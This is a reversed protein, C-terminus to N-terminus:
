HPIYNLLGGIGNNAHEILRAGSNWLKDIATLREGWTAMRGFLGALKSHSADSAKIDGRRIKMMMEFYTVLAGEIGFIPIHRLFTSLIALHRKALDRVVPDLSQDDFEIIMGEIEAILEGAESPIPLDTPIGLASLLIVLSSVSSSVDRVHNSWQGHVQELSFARALGDIASLVGGKAEDSLQSNVVVTRALSTQEIIYAAVKHIGVDTVDAGAWYKIQQCASEGPNAAKLLRLIGLVNRLSQDDM